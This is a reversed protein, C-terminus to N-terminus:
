HGQKGETEHNNWVFGTLVRYGPEWYYHTHSHALTHAHHYLHPFFFLTKKLKLLLQTLNIPFHSNLNLSIEVTYFDM